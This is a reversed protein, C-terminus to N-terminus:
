ILAESTGLEILVPFHTRLNSGNQLCIILNDFWETFKKDKFCSLKDLHYFAMVTDIHNGKGVFYSEFINPEDNIFRNLSKKNL